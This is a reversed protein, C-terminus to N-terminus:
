YLFVTSAISFNIYTFLIVMYFSFNALFYLPITSLLKLLWILSFFVNTLLSIFAIFLKYIFFKNRLLSVFCPKILPFAFMVRPLFVDLRVRYTYLEFCNLDFYKLFTKSVYSFIGLYWVPFCESHSYFTKLVPFM